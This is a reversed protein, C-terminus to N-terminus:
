GKEQRRHLAEVLKIAEKEMDVVLTDVRNRYGATAVRNRSDPKRAPVRVWCGTRARGHAGTCRGAATGIGQPVNGRFPTDM